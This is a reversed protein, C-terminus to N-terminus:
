GLVWGAEHQEVAVQQDVRFRFEDFHWRSHDHRQPRREKDMDLGIWRQDGSTPIGVRFAFAGHPVDIGKSRM